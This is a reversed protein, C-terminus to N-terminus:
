HIFSPRPCARVIPKTFHCHSRFRLDANDLVDSGFHEHGKKCTNSILTSSSYYLLQLSSIMMHNVIVMDSASGILQFVLCVMM